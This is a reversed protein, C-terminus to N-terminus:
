SLQHLDPLSGCDIIRDREAPVHRVLRRPLRVLIRGPAARFDPNSRDVVRTQDLKDRIQVGDVPLFLGEDM